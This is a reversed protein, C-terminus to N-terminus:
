SQADENQIITKARQALSACSFGSRKFYQLGRLELVPTRCNPCHLNDNDIMDDILWWDYCRPCHYHFLIELIKRDIM